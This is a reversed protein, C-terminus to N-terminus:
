SVVLKLILDIVTVVIILILIVVSSCSSLLLWTRGTISATGDLLEYLEELFDAYFSVVGTIVAVTRLEGM